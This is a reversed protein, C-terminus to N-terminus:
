APDFSEFTYDDYLVVVKRVQKPREERRSQPVTEGRADEARRDSERRRRTPSSTSQPYPRNPSAYYAAEEQRVLPTAEAEAAVTEGSPALSSAPNDDVPRAADALPPEAAAAAVPSEEPYLLSFLDPEEASPTPSVEDASLSGDRLAADPTAAVAAVSPPPLQSAPDAVEERASSSQFMQGKGFLLWNTDVEPYRRLVKMVFDLSPNNRGSMIHSLSSPQVGVEEAFQRSTINKVKLLLNIREVM